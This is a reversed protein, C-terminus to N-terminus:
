TANLFFNCKGGSIFDFQLTIKFHILWYPRNLFNQRCKDTLSFLIKFADNKGIHKPFFYNLNLKIQIKTSKKGYFIYKWRRM